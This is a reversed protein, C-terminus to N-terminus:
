GQLLGSLRPTGHKERIRVANELLNINDEELYRFDTWLRSDDSKGICFAGAQDMIVIDTWACFVRGGEAGDHRELEIGRDNATVAGFRYSSGNGLEALIRRLLKM